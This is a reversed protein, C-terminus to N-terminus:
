RQFPKLLVYSFNHSSPHLVWARPLLRTVDPGRRPDPAPPSLSHGLFRTWAAGYFIYLIYFVTFATANPEGQSLCMTNKQTTEQKHGHNLLQAFCQLKQRTVVRLRPQQRALTWFCRDKRDRPAREDDRMGNPKWVGIQVVSCAKAKTM